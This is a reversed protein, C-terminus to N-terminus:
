WAQFVEHPLDLEYYPILINNKARFRINESVIEDSIVLRVEEEESFSKHKFTTALM